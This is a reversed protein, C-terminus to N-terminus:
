SGSKESELFHRCTALSGGGAGANVSVVVTAMGAQVSGRSLGRNLEGPRPMTLVETVECHANSESFLSMVETVFFGCCARSNFTCM